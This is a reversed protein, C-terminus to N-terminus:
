GVQQDSIGTAWVPQHPNSTSFVLDWDERKAVLSLALKYSLYFNKPKMNTTGKMISSLPLLFNLAGWFSLLATWFAILETIFLNKFDKALFGM